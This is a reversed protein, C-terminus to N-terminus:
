GFLTKEAYILKNQIDKIQIHWKEFEKDQDGKFDEVRGLIIDSEKLTTKIVGVENMMAKFYDSRIFIPKALSTDENEEETEMEHSDMEAVLMDEHELAPFEPAEMVESKMSPATPIDLEEKSPFKFNEKKKSKSLFNLFGM